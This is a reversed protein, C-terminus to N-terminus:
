KLNRESITFITIFFIWIEYKIDFDIYTIIAIIIFIFAYVLIFDFKNKNKLLLKYLYIISYLFIITGIVGWYLGYQFVGSKAAINADSSAYIYTNIESVNLGKNILIYLYKQLEIPYVHLYVFNGVGFPYKFMLIIGIINTYIRTAFSTYGVIDNRLSALITPLVLIGMFFIMGLILSKYRLKLKTLMICIVGSLMLVLIFGKSGSTLLFTLFMIILPILLKKSFNLAYYIALCGYVVILSGTFSSENTFLRVRDYYSQHFLQNFLQPNSIEFILAIFLVIFIYLFPKLIKKLDFKLTLNYLSIMLLLIVILYSYGKVFKIIANEGLLNVENQFLVIYFFLSIINVGFLYITLRTLIKLFKNSCIKKKTILLYIFVLVVLFPIYTYGLKGIKNGLSNSQFIAVFLILSYIIFNM